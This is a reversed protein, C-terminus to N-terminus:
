EDDTERRGHPEIFLLLPMNLRTMNAPTSLVARLRSYLNFSSFTAFRTVESLFLSQAQKSATTTPLQQVAPPLWSLMQPSWLASIARFISVVASTSDEPFEGVLGALLCGVFEFGEKDVAAQIAAAYIPFKPPPSPYPLLSDHTLTIRFLDLSAFIIDSHVLTLAAMSARFALPFASSQFYVDPAFDVLQLLM